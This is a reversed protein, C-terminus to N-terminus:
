PALDLRMIALEWPLADYTYSFTVAELQDTISSVDGAKTYTYSKHLLDTGSPNETLLDTLRTTAPDFTYQMVTGNGLSVRGARGTPDYDSFSAYVTSVTGDSGTIARM